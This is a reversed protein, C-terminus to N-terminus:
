GGVSPTFLTLHPVGEPDIVTAAFRDSAPSWTPGPAWAVRDALKSPGIRGDSAMLWLGAADDAYLLWRGDPSWAVQVAGAAPAAGDAAVGGVAPAASGIPTVGDGAASASGADSAGGVRATDLAVALEGGDATGAIVLQDGDRYAFRRSDPSWFPEAAAPLERIRARAVDVLWRRVIRYLPAGEASTGAPETEPYVIWAGDPSIWPSADLPMVANPPLGLLAPLSDSRGGVPNVIRHDLASGGEARPRTADSLM